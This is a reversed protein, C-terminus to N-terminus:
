LEEQDEFGDVGALGEAAEVEEHSGPREEGEAALCQQEEHGSRRLAVSRAVASEEWRVRSSPLGRRLGDAGGSTSARPFVDFCTLAIAQASMRCSASGVVCAESARASQTPHIPWGEMARSGGAV